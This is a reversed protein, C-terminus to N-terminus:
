GLRSLFAKVEAVFADPRELWYGPTDGVRLTCDPVHQALLRGSRVPHLPDGEHALVLVPAAIRAYDEPEHYPADILGRIVHPLTEPNQDRLFLLQRQAAEINESFGPMLRVADLVQEMGMGQIAAGLMGLMNIAQREEPRHTDPAGLPPPMLLVLARCAEPRELGVWLSAAANMSIGGFVAETEGAEEMLAAMDRGLAEWTYRAPDPEGTSGAHGRSDYLLVRVAQEIEAIVGPYQDFQNMSGLLGHGFVVLPGEGRVRYRLRNGDIEAFRDEM